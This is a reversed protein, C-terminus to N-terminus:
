TRSRNRLEELRQRILRAKEDASADAPIPENRTAEPSDVAGTLSTSQATAAISGNALESLSPFELKELLGNRDFIVHDRHVEKLIAGGPVSGGVPYWRAEGDPTEIIAGGGANGAPAFAARLGLGSTVAVVSNAGTAAATGPTSGFLSASLIQPLVSTASDPQSVELGAISPMSRDMDRSLRWGQVGIALLTLLVIGLTATRPLSMPWRELLADLM